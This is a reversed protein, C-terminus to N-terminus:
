LPCTLILFQFQLWSLRERILPLMARMGKGIRGREINNRQKRCSGIICITDNTSKNLTELEYTHLGAHCGLVKIINFGFNSGDFGEEMGVINSLTAWSPLFRNRLGCCGVLTTFGAQEYRWSRSSMANTWPKSHSQDESSKPWKWVHVTLVNRSCDIPCDTRKVWAAEGFFWWQHIHPLKQSQALIGESRLACLARGQHNECKFWGIAM